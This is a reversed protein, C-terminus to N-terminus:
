RNKCEYFLVRFTMSAFASSLCRISRGGQFIVSSCSDCGVNVFESVDSSKGDRLCIGHWFGAM